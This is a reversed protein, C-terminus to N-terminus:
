IIVNPMLRPSTYAALARRWVEDATIQGREPRSLRDHSLRGVSDRKQQAFFLASLFFSIAKPVRQENM